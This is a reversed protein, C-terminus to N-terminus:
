CNKYAYYISTELGSFTIEEFRDSFRQGFGSNSLTISVNNIQFKKSSFDVSENISGVRLGLDEYVNGDFIGKYQSLYIFDDENIKIQVLPYAFGVKTGQGDKFRQPINLM